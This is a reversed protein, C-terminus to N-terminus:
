ADGVYGRFFGRFSRTGASRPLWWLFHGPWKGEKPHIVGHDGEAVLWAMVPFAWNEGQADLFAAAAEVTSFVSLACRDCNPKKPSAGGAAVRDDQPLFDSEPPDPKRSLLRVYKGPRGDHPAKPCGPPFHVPPVYASPTSV